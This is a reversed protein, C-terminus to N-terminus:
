KKALTDFTSIKKKQEFYCTGVKLSFKNMNLACIRTIKPACYELARKFKKEEACQRM